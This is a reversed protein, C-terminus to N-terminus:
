TDTGPRAYGHLRLTAGAVADIADLDESSLRATADANMSRIPSRSRHINWTRAALDDPFPPLDLFGALQELVGALDDCLDEYRLELVHELHDSNARFCNDSAAWQAACLEIPYRDLDNNGWDSPRARRQMGEAVAYGDRLVYIFYAPTFNQALFALRTMNAISKEVLVPSPVVYRSWQRKIRRAREVANNTPLQMPDECKLWKRPWGLEEPRPLRDCLEVGERPLATVLPHADLIQTLLTTGSNYCGVVFVWKAPTLESGLM